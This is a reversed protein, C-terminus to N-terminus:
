KIPCTFGGTQNRYARDMVMRLRRGYRRQVIFSDHIALVPLDRSAFHAIIDLAIKADVNMARPGTGSCFYGSIPKHAAKFM